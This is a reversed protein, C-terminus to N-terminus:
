AASTNQLLAGTLAKRKRRSVCAMSNDAMIIHGDRDVTNIYMSNVLHSRHTRIFGFPSLISEYASLVKAMLIPKHNRFHIFTYNSEAELRIIQDPHFCHTGGNCPFKLRPPAYVGTPIHNSSM